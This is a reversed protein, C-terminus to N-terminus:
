FRYRIDLHEECSVHDACGVCVVNAIRDNDGCPKRFRLEKPSRFEEIEILAAVIGVDAFQPDQQGATLEQDIAINTGLLELANQALEQTRTTLTDM